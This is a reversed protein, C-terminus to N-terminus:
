EQYMAVITLVFLSQALRTLVYLNKVTESKKQTCVTKLSLCPYTAACWPKSQFRRLVYM